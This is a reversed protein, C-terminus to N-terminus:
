AAGKPNNNGSSSKHRLRSVEQDVKSWFAGIQEDQQEESLGIRQFQGILADTVQKCYYEAHRDTQKDLLKSAVDRIKGVRNIMPYPIIKCAAQWVFLPLDSDRM